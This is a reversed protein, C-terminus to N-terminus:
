LISSFINIRVFLKIRLNWLHVTATFVTSNLDYQIQRYSAAYQPRIKMHFHQILKPRRVISTNFYEKTKLLPISQCVNQKIQTQRAKQYVTSLHQQTKCVNM